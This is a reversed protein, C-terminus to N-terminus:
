AGARLTQAGVAQKYYSALDLALQRRAQQSELAGATVNITVNGSAKPLGTSQNVQEKPLVYEGRHVVGAVENEGGQGTYGGTAFGHWKFISSGKFLSNVAETVKATFANVASFAKVQDFTSRMKSVMGDLFSSMNNRARGAAAVAENFSDNAARATEAYTSRAKSLMDNYTEYAAAKQAELSRKQEAYQEQLSEVEDLLIVDRVANLADRHKRMFAEEEALESRLSDLRQNLSLENAATEADFEAQNAQVQKKYLNNEKALAFRLRTLKEQNYKNNYRQLFNIQSMLEDVKKEHAIEEEVQSKEFDAVREKFAANYDANADRVQQTLDAITDEHRVLIQKMSRNFNREIKAYQDNINALSKALNKGASSTADSLKTYAKALKNTREASSENIQSQSKVFEATAEGISHMKDAVNDAWKGIQDSALRRAKWDVGTFFSSVAEGAEFFAQGIQRALGIVDSLRAVVWSLATSIGEFVGGLAKGLDEAVGKNERLLAAFSEAVDGFPEFAAGIALQVEKWTEALEQTGQVLKSNPNADMYASVSDKLVKFAIGAAGLAAGVKLASAWSNKLAGDLQNAADVSNELGSSIQEGADSVQEKLDSNDLMVKYIIKGVEDGSVFGGSTKAM